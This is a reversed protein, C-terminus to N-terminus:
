GPPGSFPRFSFFYKKQSIGCNELRDKILPVALYCPKQCMPALKTALPTSPWMPCIQGMEVPMCYLPFRGNKRLIPKGQLWLQIIHLYDGCDRQAGGSCGLSVLWANKALHQRSGIRRYSFSYMAVNPATYVGSPFSPAWVISNM